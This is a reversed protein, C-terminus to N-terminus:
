FFAELYFDLTGRAMTSQTKEPWLCQTKGLCPCKVELEFDLFNSFTVRVESLYKTIEEVKKLPKESKFTFYSVRGFSKYFSSLIDDKSDLKYSDEELLLNLLDFKKKQV